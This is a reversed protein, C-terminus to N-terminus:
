RGKEFNRLIGVLKNAEQREAQITARKGGSSINIDMVEKPASTGSEGLNFDNAIGAFAMAPTGESMGGYAFQPMQFGRLVSLAKGGRAASQLMKFFNPGFRSTTLSDMVYEGNSLWSLIRDDKPGGAGRVQGASTSPSGGTAFRAIGRGAGLISEILGGRANTQATLNLLSNLGTIRAIKLDGTITPRVEQEIVETMGITSIQARVTPRLADLSAIVEEVSVTPKIQVAVPGVQSFQANIEELTKQDAAKDRETQITITRKEDELRKLEEEERRKEIVIDAQISLKTDSFTRVAQKGAAEVGTLDLVPKVKVLDETKSLAAETQKLKAIAEATLKGPADPALRADIALTARTRNLLDQAETGFASLKARAEADLPADVTFLKIKNSKLSEALKQTRSQIAIVEARATKAKAQVADVATAVAAVPAVDVRPRFILPTTLPKVVKEAVVAAGALVSRLDFLPRIALRDSKLVGTTKEVASTLSSVAKTTAEIPAKAEAAVGRATDRVSTIANSTAGRLQDSLAGGAAQVKKVEAVAATVQSTDIPITVPAAALPQPRPGLIRDAAPTLEVDVPTEVRAPTSTAAKVGASISEEVEKKLLAASAGLTVQATLGKAKLATDLEEKLALGQAKIKAFDITGPDILGKSTQDDLQRVLNAYQETSAILSSIQDVATAADDGSLAVFRGLGEAAVAEFQTALKSYGNAINTTAAEIDGSNRRLSVGTLESAKRVRDLFSEVSAADILNQGAIPETTAIKEGATEIESYVAKIKELLDTRRALAGGRVDDSVNPDIITANAEKLAESYRQLRSELKDFNKIEEELGRRQKQIDLRDQEAERLKKYKEELEFLAQKEFAYAAQRQNFVRLGGAEQEAFVREQQGLKQELLAKETDYETEITSLRQRSAADDARDTLQNRSQNRNAAARNRVREIFAETNKSLKEVEGAVQVAYNKAREAEVKAAQSFKKYMDAVRRNVSFTAAADIIDDATIVPSVADRFQEVQRAQKQLREAFATSGAPDATSRIENILSAARKSTLAAKLIGAEQRIQAETLTDLELRLATVAARIADQGAVASAVDGTTRQDPSNETLKGEEEKLLRQLEVVREQQQAFRLLAGTSSDTAKGFLAQAEAASFGFTALNKLGADVNGLKQLAQQTRVLAEEQARIEAELPARNSASKTGALDDRLKAISNTLVASNGQLERQASVANNLSETYEAFRQTAAGPDAPTFTLDKQANSLVEANRVQAIQEATLKAAEERAGKYREAIASVEAALKKTEADSKLFAPTELGLLDLAKRAAAGFKEWLGAAKILDVILLGIFVFGVLRSLAGGIFSFAKAASAAFRGMAAVALGTRTAAIGLLRTGTLMVLLARSSTSSATAWAGSLGTVSLSAQGVAAVVRGIASRTGIAARQIGAISNAVGVAAIGTPGLQRMRAVLAQVSIVAGTASRAVSGFLASLGVGATGAVGVSAISARVKAISSAVAISATSAATVLPAFIRSAAASVQAGLASIQGTLTASNLRVNIAAIRAQLRAIASTARDAAGTAAILADRQATLFTINGRIGGLQRNSLGVATALRLQQETIRATLASVSQLGSLRPQALIQNVRASAAGLAAQQQVLTATLAARGATLRGSANVVGLVFNNFQAGLRAFLGTSAEAARAPARAAAAAAAMAASVSNYEATLKNLAAGQRAIGRAGGAAVAANFAVLQATIRQQIAALAQLSRTRAVAAATAASEASASAETARASATSAAAVGGLAGALKSAGPIATLLSGGFLKMLAIFGKFVAFASVLAVIRLVAGWDVGTGELAGFLSTLGTIAERITTIASLIDQAARRLSDSNVPDQLAKSMDRFAQTLPPLFVDGVTASLAKINNVFVTFQALLGGLVTQQEKEASTGTREADAASKRLRALVSAQVAADKLAEARLRLGEVAAPDTGETNSRALATEYETAAQKAQELALLERRRQEQLKTVAEFLRGEGTLRGKTAAADQTSLNNLADIYANLAGIGDTELLNVFDQTSRISDSRVVTAFEAANSKFDAFIKTITTGATEATLGLDILTGSIAVADPLKVSGGLNGIRRVVDFLQEATANSVNSVENIASLANRFRDPSIDFINVLKGFSTVVEEASIDLASVATAVVKTFELLATPGQAGIGIQGGLTAIKALDVATVNIQTSLERLGIKLKGLNERGFDTTKAANLLEKQFQAAETIPFAFTTIATLASSVAGVFRIVGSEIKKLEGSLNDKGDVQVTLKADAM